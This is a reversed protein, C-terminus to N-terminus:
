SRLPSDTRKCSQRSADVFTGCSLDAGHHQLEAGSPTKNRVPNNHGLKGAGLAKKSISIVWVAEEYRSKKEIYDLMGRSVACIDDYSLYDGARESVPFSSIEFVLDKYVKNM